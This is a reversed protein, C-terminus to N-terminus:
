SFPSPAIQTWKLCIQYFSPLTLLLVNHNNKSLIYIFIQFHFPFVEQFPPFIM